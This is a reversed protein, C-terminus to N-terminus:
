GRGIRYAVCIGAIGGLASLVIGSMSFMGAHWLAPVLGGITSGVFMGLYIWKKGVTNGRV